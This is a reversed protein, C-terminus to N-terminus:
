REIIEVITEKRRHLGSECCPAKVLVSSPLRSRGTLFGPLVIRVGYAQTGNRYTGDRILRNNYQFTTSSHTKLIYIM